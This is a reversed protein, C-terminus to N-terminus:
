HRKGYRNRIWIALSNMSLLLVLLVVITASALIRFEERPESTWNFIQIPLVTYRDFVSEPVFTVFTVGGLLLLPAAEGIARSLSVISGTAIGPVAQPLVQRWITQWKTAGLALSGQRISNPVARIAERSAIILVPLILLSLTLSATMITFGVQLQRAIIGLGLIGYVISPVAALNQINLEILRNVRSLPNAYEELYIATMVGLPVAILFVLAMVWLTGAIASLAGALEPNISSPMNLWLRSDIRPWGRQVLFVILVLLFVMATALCAFLVARFTWEKPSRTEPQLSPADDPLVAPPTATATM